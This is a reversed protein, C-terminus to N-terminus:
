PTYWDHSADAADPRRLGALRTFGHNYALQQAAILNTTASLSKFQRVPPLGNRALDNLVTRGVEQLRHEDRM